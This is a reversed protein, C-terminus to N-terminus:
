ADHDAYSYAEADYIRRTGRAYDRTARDIQRLHARTGIAGLRPGLATLVQDYTLEHGPAELLADTLRIIAPWFHRVLADAHIEPRPDDLGMSAVERLDDSCCDAVLNVIDDRDDYTIRELMEVQAAAGALLLVAQTHRPRYTMALDDTAGSWGAVDPYVIIRDFQEGTVVHAVANAAQRIAASVARTMDAVVDYPGAAHPSTTSNMATTGELNM